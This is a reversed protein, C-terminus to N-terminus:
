IFSRKEWILLFNTEVQNQNKQLKKLGVIIRKMLGVIRELRDEFNSVKEMHSSFAYFKEEILDSDSIFLSTGEESLHNGILGSERKGRSGMGVGGVGGYSSGLVGAGSKISRTTIITSRPAECRRSASLDSDTQSRLVNQSKM